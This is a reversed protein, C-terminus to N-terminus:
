RVEIRDRYGLWDLRHRGFGVEALLTPEPWRETEGLRAAADGELDIRQLGREREVLWAAGGASEVRVHGEKLREIKRYLDEAFGEATPTLLRWENGIALEFTTRGGLRWVRLGQSDILQGDGPRELRATQREDVSRRVGELSRGHLVGEADGYVAFPRRSFGEPVWGLLRHKPSPSHITRWSGALPDYAAIAGHRDLMHFVDGRQEILVIHDLDLDCGAGGRRLEYAEGLDSDTWTRLHVTEGIRYVLRLVDGIAELALDEAGNAARYIIATALDSDIAVVQTGDLVVLNDGFRQFDVPKDVGVLRSVTWRDLRADYLAAQAADGFVAVRDLTPNWAYIAGAVVAPLGAPAGGLATTSEGGPGPRPGAARGGSPHRFIQPPHSGDVSEFMSSDLLWWRESADLGVVSGMRSPSWTENELWFTEGGRLRAALPGSPAQRLWVIPNERRSASLVPARQWRGRRWDYLHLSGDPGGLWIEGAGRGAAIATATAPHFPLGEGGFAEANHRGIMPGTAVVRRDATVWLAGGAALRVQRVTAAPRPTETWTASAADYDFLTGQHVFGVRWDAGNAEDELLDGQLSQRGRPPQQALRESVDALINDPRFATVRSGWLRGDHDNWYIRHGADVIQLPEATSGLPDLNHWRQQEPLYVQPSGDAIALVRGGDGPSRISRIESEELKPSGNKVEIRRITKSTDQYSSTAADYLFSGRDTVFLSTLSGPEGIRRVELIRPDKQLPKWGGPAAVRKPLAQEFPARVARWEPTGDDTNLRYTALRGGPALKLGDVKGADLVQPSTAQCAGDGPAAFLLGKTTVVLAARAAEAAPRARALPELDRVEAGDSASLCRHRRDYAFLGRRTGLWLSRGAVGAATVESLPGLVAARPDRRFYPGHWREGAFLWLSGDASRASAWRDDWAADVHSVPVGLWRHAAEELSSASVFRVEDRSRLWAGERNFIAQELPWRSLPGLRWGRTRYWSGDDSQEFAYRAIGRGRVALTWGDPDLRQGVIDETALPEIGSWRPQEPAPLWTEVRPPRGARIEDIGGDVGLAFFQGPELGATVDLVPRRHIRRAVRSQSDIAYAGDWRALMMWPGSGALAHVRTGAPGASPGRGTTADVTNWEWVAPLFWPPREGDIAVLSRCGPSVALIHIALLLSLVTTLSLTLGWASVSRLVYRYPWSPTARASREAEIRLDRPWPLDLQISGASVERCRKELSTRWGEPIRDRWRPYADRLRRHALWAVADPEELLTRPVGLGSRSALGLDIWVDLAVDPSLLSPAVALWTLTAIERDKATNLRDFAALVEGIRSAREDPEEQQADGLAFFLDLFRNLGTERSVGVAQRWRQAGTPGELWVGFVALERALEDRNADIGAELDSWRPEALYRLLMEGTALCARLTQGFAAHGEARALEVKRERYLGKLLLLCHARGWKPRSDLYALFDGTSVARRVGRVVSGHVWRFGRWSGSYAVHALVGFFVAAAVVGLLTFGWDATWDVAWLGSLTGLSVILFLSGARSSWPFCLHRGNRHHDLIGSLLWGAAAALFLWPFVLYLRLGEFVLTWYGEFPNLGLLLCLVVTWGPVLWVTRRFRIWRAVDVLWEHFSRLEKGALRPLTTMSM